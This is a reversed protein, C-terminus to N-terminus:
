YWWLKFFFDIKKIEDNLILNALFDVDNIFKTKQTSNYCDWVFLNDFIFWSSYELDFIFIIM